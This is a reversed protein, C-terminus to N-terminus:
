RIMIMKKTILHEDNSVQYLYIGETLTSQTNVSWKSKGAPFLKKERMVISGNADILLLNLEAEHKLIIPIDTTGNFPNPENQLVELSYDIDSGREVRIKFEEFENEGVASYLESSFTENSIQVDTDKSVGVLELM